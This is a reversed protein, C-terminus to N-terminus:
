RADYYERLAPVVVLRRRRVEADMPVPEGDDLLLGTLHGGYVCGTDLGTAWPHIQPDVRAYHGFVIHPAERYREGWLVTGGKELAEGRSGLTRITMLTSRKQKEIPIGPVVGAHVVRVNHEPLDVWLPSAELLTWDIPRLKAVVDAHIRGLPKLDKKAPEKGDRWGM